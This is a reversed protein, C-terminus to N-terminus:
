HSNIESSIGSLILYITSVKVWGQTTKVTGELSNVMDTLESWLKKFKPLSNYKHKRKALDRHKEM